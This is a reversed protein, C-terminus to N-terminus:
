HEFNRARGDSTKRLRTGQEKNRTEQKKNANPIQMKCERRCENNPMRHEINL